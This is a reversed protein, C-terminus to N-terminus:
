RKIVANNKCDKHKELFETKKLEMYELDDTEIRLKAGCKDCQLTEPIM